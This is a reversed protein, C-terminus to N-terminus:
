SNRDRLTQLSANARAIEASLRGQFDSGALRAATQISGAIADRGSSGHAKIVNGRVGLLPAGGHRHIDVRQRAQRQAGRLLFAGLMRGPHLRAEERAVSKLRGWFSQFTKLLVNGTFGDTVVVDVADEFVRSGELLGLYHIQGGLQRLAEHAANTLPTGCREGASMSLLGVRPRKRGLAVHAYASGLIAYHVLNEPKCLPNAGSDLVVFHTDKGPWVTALAPKAIGEIPRLRLTACAMLAGTNGCSVAAGCAGQQVREIAKVLSADRKTKLSHVPKEKMGIVESAPFFSVLAHDALGMQRLIPPVIDPHGVVEFGGPADGRLLALRVAAVVEGPGQDAGMADVAIKETYGASM